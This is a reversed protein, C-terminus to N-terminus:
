VVEAWNPGIEADAKVPVYLKLGMPTSTEMIEIVKPVVEAVEEEPVELDIEDHVTLLVRAGYESKRLFRHTEILANLLLDSALSQIPFNQAQRQADQATKQTLFPFRRKRGLPTELIQDELVARQQNLIWDRLQPFGDLFNDIFKQADATNWNQGRLEPGHAISYAGRGFLLGFGIFKAAYREAPGVESHQLGLASSAVEIHIDRGTTYVDRMREDRSLHCAARYEMQSGDVKVWLCGPRTIYARRIAKGAMNPQNQLNPKESSLRGTHTGPLNFSGRIRGDADVMEILAKAYTSQIKSITRYELMREIFKTAPHEPYKSQLEELTAADTKRGGRPTPLGFQDYLIVAVQQWSGPNFDSRVPLGSETLIKRMDYRIDKLDKLLEQNYKTLYKVDLQAGTLEIEALTKAAPFLLEEALQWMKPDEEFIREHFMNFSSLTFVLDEALYNYLASYNRKERPLKWFTKWNWHYDPYDWYMRAITKLGHPNWKDNIPREDLLYSMLMTDAFPLDLTQFDYGPLMEDLYKKIWKLDFQGNHAVLLRGSDIAWEFVAAVAEATERRYIVEHPIQYTIFGLDYDLLGFGIADLRGRMPNLAATEDEIDDDQPATEVDFSIPEVTQKMRHIMMKLEHTTKLVAQTRRPPSKPESQNAFKNIDFALDKFCEPTKLVIWLPITVTVPIWGRNIQYKYQIGRVKHMPPNVSDGCIMTSGTPGICLIRRPKVKQIETILGKRHTIINEKVAKNHRIDPIAYTIYCENLSIDFLALTKKLLNEEERSMMRKQRVLWPQPYELILMDGGLPGQGQVKNNQIHM